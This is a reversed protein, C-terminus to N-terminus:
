ESESVESLSSYDDSFNIEDGFLAEEDDSFNPNQPPNIPNQPNNFMRELLEKFSVTRILCYRNTLPDLFLHQKKTATAVRQCAEYWEMDNAKPVDSYNNQYYEKWVTSRVIREFATKCTLALRQSEIPGLNLIIADLIISPLELLPNEANVNKIPEISMFSDGYNSTKNM